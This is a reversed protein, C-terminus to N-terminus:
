GGTRVAQIIIGPEWGTLPSKWVQPEGLVDYTEGRVRIRNRANVATGAPMYVTWGSTVANRADLLPEASGGEGVVRPELGCGEIDAETPTLDWSPEGQNSYRDVKTAATLVTVTEGYPFPAGTM